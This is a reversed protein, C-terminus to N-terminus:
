SKRSKLQSSVRPKAIIIHVSTITKSGTSDRPNQSSIGPVIKDKKNITTRHTHPLRWSLALEFEFNHMAQKTAKEGKQKADNPKVM